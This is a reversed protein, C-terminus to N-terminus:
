REGGGHEALVSEQAFRNRTNPTGYRSKQSTLTSEAPHNRARTSVNRVSCLDCGCDWQMCTSDGHLIERIDIFQKTKAAGALAYGEPLEHWRLLLLMLGFSRIAPPNFGCINLRAIPLPVSPPEIVDDSSGRHCELARRWTPRAFDM